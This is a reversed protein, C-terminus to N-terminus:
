ICTRAMPATDMTPHSFPYKKPPLFLCIVYGGGGCSEIQNWPQDFCTNFCVHVYIFHMKYVDLIRSDKQM